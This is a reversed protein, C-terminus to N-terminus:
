KDIKRTALKVNRNFGSENSDQGLFQDFARQMADYYVHVAMGNSEFFASFNLTARGCSRAPFYM